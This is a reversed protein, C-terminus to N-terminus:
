GKNKGNKNDGKLKDNALREKSIQVYLASTDIGISDVGLREAALSTTGAGSFPDLVRCPVSDAPECSCTPRWGTTIVSIKDQQGLTTGQGGNDGDTGNSRLQGHGSYPREELKGIVVREIVRVYPAGCRPCCGKESISAKICIEPLRPPFAAYHQFKGPTTSFEWVSRLNRGGDPGFRQGMVGTDVPPIGVGVDAPHTHRLGSKVRKKTSATIPEVVTYKDCYYNNTKTLMLIFEYSDTPRWSGKRLIYGDNKECKPCGPCDVMFSDSRFGGDENHEQQGTEARWAEAEGRNASKKWGCVKCVRNRFSSYSKCNPCQPVKHREWRWGSVSEPMPSKKSWIPISRVYWGDARAALALQQPILIMDLPKASNYSADGRPIGGRSASKSIGPNAHEPKHAGGSGAWSDGINIWFIGDPRLVRRVERMVQILHQIYLEPSPEAGLQGKWAGCKVCMDSKKSEHSGIRARANGVRGVEYDGVGGSRPLSSDVWKHECNEDGDWVEEGGDYKRLGYYPPSTVCCHFWNAPLNPLISRADGELFIASM